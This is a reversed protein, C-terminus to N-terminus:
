EVNQNQMMMIFVNIIWHKITNLLYMYLLFKTALTKKMKKNIKKMM